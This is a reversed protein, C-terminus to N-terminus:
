RWNGANVPGRSGKSPSTSGPHPTPNLRNSTGTASGSGASVSPATSKRPSSPATSKRPSGPATSKRPSGPVVTSKRPSSPTPRSTSASAPLSARSSSSSPATSYSNNVSSTAAVNGAAGTTKRRGPSAVPVPISSTRVPTTARPVPGSSAPTLLQAAPPNPTSPASSGSATTPASKRGARTARGGGTAAAFSRLLDQGQDDEDEMGEGEAADEAAPHVGRLFAALDAAAVASASTLSSSSSSSTIEKLADGLRRSIAQMYRGSVADLQALTHTSSRLRDIKWEADAIASRLEKDANKSTSENPDVDMSQDKADDDDGGEGNSPRKRKGKRKSSERRQDVDQGSVDAEDDATGSGARFQARLVSLAFDYRSRQAEDWAAGQDDRISELTSLITTHDSREPGKGKADSRRRSRRSASTMDAEEEAEAEAEENQARLADLKAELEKNDKELREVDEAVAEWRSMESRLGLLDGELRAVVNANLVNRPHKAKSTTSTSGQGRDQSRVVWNVNTMSSGPTTLDSVTRALAASLVARFAVATSTNASLEARDDSNLVPLPPPPPLPNAGGKRGKSSSGKKDASSESVDPPLLVDPLRTPELNGRTAEEVGRELIWGYVAKLRPVAGMQDHVHRYLEESPIERHPFAPTRGDRLSSRRHTSKTNLSSRRSSSSSSNTTSSSKPTRRGKGSADRSSSPISPRGMGLAQRSSSSDAESHKGRTRSSGQSPQSAEETHRSRSPTSPAGTRLAQNRRIVPTEGDAVDSLLPRAAATSSTSPQASSSAGAKRKSSSTASKSSSGNRKTQSPGEDQDAAIAPDVRTFIFGDDIEENLTQRPARTTSSSPVKKSSSSSTHEAEPNPRKRKPDDKQPQANAAKRKQSAASSSGSSSSVAPAADPTSDPFLDEFRAETSPRQISGASAPLPARSHRPARNSNSAPPAEETSTSASSSSKKKKPAM